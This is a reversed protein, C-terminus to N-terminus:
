TASNRQLTCLSGAYDALTLTNQTVAVTFVLGLGGYQLKVRQNDLFSYSGAYSDLLVTGDQLFEVQQFAVSSTPFDCPGHWTGIISQQLSPACGALLAGLALLIGLLAFAVRVRATYWLM